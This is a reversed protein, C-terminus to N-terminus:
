VVSPVCACERFLAGLLILKIEITIKSSSREISVLQSWALHSWPSSFDLWVTPRRHTDEANTENSALPLSGHVCKRDSSLTRVCRPLLRAVNHIAEVPQGSIISRLELEIIRMRDVRLFFRDRTPIFFDPVSFMGLEAASAMTRRLRKRHETHFWSSEDLAFPVDKLEPLSRTVGM